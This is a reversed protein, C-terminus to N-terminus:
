RRRLPDTKLWAVFALVATFALGLAGVQEDSVEIEVGFAAAVLVVASVLAGVAAPAKVKPSVPTAPDPTPEM